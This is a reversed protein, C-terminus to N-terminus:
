WILHILVLPSFFALVLAQLFSDHMASPLLSAKAMSSHPHNSFFPIPTFPPNKPHNSFFPIHPSILICYHNIPSLLPQFSSEKSSQQLLPHPTCPYENLKALTLLLFCPSFAPNKHHNSFFPIHPLLINM